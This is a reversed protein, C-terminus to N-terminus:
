TGVNVTGIVIWMVIVIGGTGAALGIVEGDTELDLDLGQAPVVTM